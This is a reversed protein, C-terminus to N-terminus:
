RVTNTIDASDFCWIGFEGNADALTVNQANRMICHTCAMVNKKHCEPLLKAIQVGQITRNQLKRFEHEDERGLM